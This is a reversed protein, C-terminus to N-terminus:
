KRPVRIQGTILNNLLYKKQDKLVSLKKELEDIEKDAIVIIDAIANQEKVSTPANIELNKIDTGSIASFTSGQELSRWISECSELFKLLFDKNIKEPIIGCVGRGICIEGSAIGISGVPARVTMIITEHGVQKTIETTWIREITKGKKIDNNGQILPLGSRNENYASSSPSQGMIVKAVDGLKVIRWIDKFGVLRMKGTLLNQMLGKKINKKVKIKKALKEIVQDWTELVAIIHKQELLSPFTFKIKEITNKSLSPVGSAENYLKWNIKQFVFNIYKANTNKYNYTYFLTDVTWFDGKFYFPKDITGKRGIFVTEGSYLPKDVSSMYGGTGFVPVVGKGLHKYDKGNGVTLVDGLKLEKWGVPINKQPNINKRM